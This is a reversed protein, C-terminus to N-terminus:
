WEPLLSENAVYCYAVQQRAAEQQLLRLFSGGDSTAVTTVWQAVSHVCIREFKSALSVLGACFEDQEEDMDIRAIEEIARLDPALDEAAAAAGALTIPTILGGAFLSRVYQTPSGCFLQTSHGAKPLWSHANGIISRFLFEGAEDLDFGIRGTHHQYVVVFVGAASYISRLQTEAVPLWHRSGNAVVLKNAPGMM